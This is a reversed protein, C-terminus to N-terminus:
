YNYIVKTIYPGYGHSFFVLVNLLVMLFTATIGLILEKPAWSCCVIYCSKQTM